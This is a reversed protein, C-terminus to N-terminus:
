KKEAAKDVAAVAADADMIVGKARKIRERLKALKSQGAMMEQQMQAMRDDFDSKIKKTGFYDDDEDQKQEKNDDTKKKEDEGESTKTETPKDEKIAEVKVKPDPATVKDKAVTEEEKEKKTTSNENNKKIQRRWKPQKDAANVKKNKEEEGPKPLVILVSKRRKTEEEAEKEPKSRPEPAAPVAKKVKKVTKTTTKKSTSTTGRSTNDEDGEDKAALADSFTKTERSTTTTAVTTNSTETEEDGEEEPIVNVCNVKTIASSISATTKTYSKPPRNDTSITETSSLSTTPYETSKDKSYNSSYDSDVKVKAAIPSELTKLNNEIESLREKWNTRNPLLHDIDDEQEQKQRQGYNDKMTTPAKTSDTKSESNRSWMGPITREATSTLRTTSKTSSDDKDLNLRDRWSSRTGSYADSDSDLTLKTNGLTKKYTDYAPTPTTIITTPAMDNDIQDLKLRERWGKITDSNMDLSMRNNSSGFKDTDLRAVSVSRLQRKDEYPLEKDILKDRWSVKPANSVTELFNESNNLERLVSPRKYDYEQTTGNTYLTTRMPTAFRSTDERRGVSYKSKYTENDDNNNQIHKRWNNKDKIERIKEKKVYDSKKEFSCLCM